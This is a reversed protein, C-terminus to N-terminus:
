TSELRHVLCRTSIGVKAKGLSSAAITITLVDLRVTRLFTPSNGNFMQHYAGRMQGANNECIFIVRDVMFRQTLGDESSAIYGNKLHDMPHHAHSIIIGEINKSPPVGWITIILSVKKMM